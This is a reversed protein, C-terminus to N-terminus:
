KPRFNKPGEGLILLAAVMSIDTRKTVQYEPLSRKKKTGINRKKTIAIKKIKRENKTIQTSNQKKKHLQYIHLKTVIKWSQYEHPQLIKNKKHVLLFWKTIKCFFSLLIECINWRQYKKCFFFQKSNELYKGSNDM